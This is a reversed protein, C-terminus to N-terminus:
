GAVDLTSKTHCKKETIRHVASKSEDWDFTYEQGLLINEEWKWIIYDQSYDFTYNQMINM